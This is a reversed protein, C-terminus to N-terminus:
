WEIDCELVAKDIKGWTNYKRISKREIQNIQIVQYYM